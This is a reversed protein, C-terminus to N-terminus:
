NQLTLYEKPDVNEYGAAGKKLLEFHLHGITQNDKSSSSEFISTNGISGILQGKKVTQNKKVEIKEGLNAYISKYGNSHEVEVLWGLGGTYENDNRIDVVKGDAIAVVETGEIGKIDIGSHTRWEGLSEYNVLTETSYDRMVNAATFGDKMPNDFKVDAEAAAPKSSVATTDEENVEAMGDTKEVESYDNEDDVSFSAELEPDIEQASTENGPATIPATTDNVDNVGQNNKAGNRSVWVATIAVICVCLFLVIYFGEKDFFKSVKEKSFKSKLFGKMNM